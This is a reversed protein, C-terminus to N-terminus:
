SQPRIWALTQNIRENFVVSYGYENNGNWPPINCGVVATNSSPRQWWYVNNMLSHWVFTFHKCSSHSKQNILPPSSWNNDYFKHPILCYIKEAYIVAGCLLANTCRYSESLPKTQPRVRNVWVKEIILEFNSYEKASTPPQSILHKSRLYKAM